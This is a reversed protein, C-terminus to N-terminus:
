VRGEGGTKILKPFGSCGASLRLFRCGWGAGGGIGRLLLRHGARAPATVLGLQEGLVAECVGQKWSGSRALSARASPM